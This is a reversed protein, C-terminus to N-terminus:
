EAKKPPVYTYKMHLWTSVMVIPLAVVLEKTLARQYLGWEVVGTLIIGLMISFGKRVGGCYKVVLGVLIGGCGSTLVPVFTAWTWHHFFGHKAMVRGEEATFLYAALTIASFVCLEMSYLYTNRQQGQLNRQVLAGALGSLVSALLVPVIGLFFDIQKAGKPSEQQTLVLSAFFLMALAFIQIKSQRKGILLYIFVATFLIKTQNLLNFTLGDLNQYAIQVLMNQAAYIIAPTGAARISDAVTWGKLAAKAEGTIFLMAGALFFKAVETALVCSSKLTDPHNLEQILIPQLGFQLALLAMVVYGVVSVDDDGM